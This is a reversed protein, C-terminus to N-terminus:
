LALFHRSLTHNSGQEFGPLVEFLFYKVDSGIKVVHSTDVFVINNRQLEMFEALPIEQLNKIILTHNVKDSGSLLSLLREPYPEIFKFKVKKDFFLDNVDLMAASSFGSGVEVIKGPKFHRILSYLIITDGHCFFDNSFYYRQSSHKNEPFPMESFYNSFQALLDMQEQERLNVGPCSELDRRFLVDRRTRVDELDPLPSYYHGIPAFKLFPFEAREANEEGSDPLNPFKRDFDM